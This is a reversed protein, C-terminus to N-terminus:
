HTFLSSIHSIRQPLSRLMNWPSPEDGDWAIVPFHPRGIGLRYSAATVKFEGSSIELGHGTTLKIDSGSIPRNFLMRVGWPAPLLRFDHIRALERGDVWVRHPGFYVDTFGGTVGHYDIFDIPSQRNTWNIDIVPDGNQMVYGAREVSDIQRIKFQVTLILSICVVASIARLARTRLSAGMDAMIWRIALWAFLALYPIAWKFYHINKYRWVGGPLLDGFPAYLAFHFVIALALIRLLMDGRVLAVVIGVISLLLWPYHAVIAATPELYVSNSDFLLSWTKRPLMEVFYGSATATSQFYGGLPSGFIKINVLAFLLLGFVVGGGLVIAIVLVRRWQAIFEEANKHPVSFYIYAPFFIAVLGADVPRLIALSGLLISFLGAVVVVAGGKEGRQCTARQRLLILFAVGYILTTGSTTWPIAFNEIEPFNLWLAAATLVFTEGRSLYNDAVKVFAYVFILLSAGNFLFFPHHPMWHLFIRGILPYLIPYYFNSPSYDGAALARAERLYYGQDFWTWWGDPSVPNNGPSDLYTVYVAVYAVLSCVLFIWLPIFLRNVGHAARFVIQRSESM